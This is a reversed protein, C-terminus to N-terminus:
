SSKREDKNRQKCSACKRLTEPLLRVSGLSPAKFVIMCIHSAKLTVCNIGGACPERISIQILTPCVLGRQIFPIQYIAIKNDVCAGLTIKRVWWLTWGIIYVSKSVIRLLANTKNIELAALYECAIDEPCLMGSTQHRMTVSWCNTGHCDVELM